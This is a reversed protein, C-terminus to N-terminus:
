RQCSSKQYKYHVNKKGPGFLKRRFHRRNWRLSGCDPALVVCIWRKSREEPTGIPCPTYLNWSRETYNFNWFVYLKFKIIIFGVDRKKESEICVLADTLATYVILILLSDTIRSRGGHYFQHIRLSSVSLPILSSLRWWLWVYCVHTLYTIFEQPISFTFSWM